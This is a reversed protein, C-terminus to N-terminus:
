CICSREIMRESLFQCWRVCGIRWEQGRRCDREMMQEM